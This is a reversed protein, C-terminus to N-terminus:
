IVAAWSFPGDGHSEMNCSRGVSASSPTNSLTHTDEGKTMDPWSWLNGPSLVLSQSSWRLFNIIFWLPRPNIGAGHDILELGQNCKNLVPVIWRWVANGHRERSSRKRSYSASIVHTSKKKFKKKLHAEAKPAKLSNQLFLCSPVCLSIHRSLQFSGLRMRGYVVAAVVFCFKQCAVHISSKIWPLSPSTPPSRPSCLGCCPKPVYLGMHPSSQQPSPPVPATILVQCERERERERAPSKSCKCNNDIKSILPSVTMLVESSLQM